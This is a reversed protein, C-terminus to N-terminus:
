GACGKILAARPWLQVEQNDLAIAVPNQPLDPGFGYKVAAIATPKSQLAVASTALELGTQTFLVPGLPSFASRQLTTPAIESPTERNIFSLQGGETIKYRLLESAQGAGRYLLLTEGFASVLRAPQDLHFLQKGTHSHISVGDVGHALALYATIPTSKLALFSASTVPYSAKFSLKACAQDIQLKAKIEGSKQAAQSHQLEAESANKAGFRHFGYSLIIIILAATLSFKLHKSTINM